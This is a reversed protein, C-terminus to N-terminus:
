IYYFDIKNTTALDSGAIVGNWYLTDGSAITSYTKATTGGDSSFYCHKTKVGNGLTMILGDVAIIILGKPTNSITLGTTANDGSTATPTMDKDSTQPSSISGSVLTDVYGKDVLSRSGYNASNDVAYRAGYRDFEVINTLSGNVMLNISMKFFEAGLTVDTSITEITGGVKYTDAVTEVEFEIGAGIGAAPALTTTHTLKLIYTVGANTADNQVVHLTRDPTETNIGVFEDLISINVKFDGWVVWENADIKLLNVVAHRGALELSQNLNRIVVESDGAITTQGINYQEVLIRAGIEFAVTDHNPITLTNASLSDMKILKYADSLAITYNTPQSNPYIGSISVASRWKVEGTISDRGLIQTIGDDQTPTLAINLNPVYVQDPDTARAKIGSGGLIVSRPSDSPINHDYGGIIASYDGLAGHGSIQAISNSSINIAHRGEARVGFEGSDGGFNATNTIGMVIAGFGTTVGKFGQVFNYSNNAVANRAMVFTMSMNAASPEIVNNAGGFIGSNYVQFGNSRIENNYGGIIASNHVVGAGATISMKNAEGTITAWRVNGVDGTITHDVGMIINHDYVGSGTIAINQGIITNNTGSMTILLDDTAHVEFKGLRSATTGLKLDYASGGAIETDVALPGGLRFNYGSLTIGNDSTYKKNTQFISFVIPDTGVNIIPDVAPTGSVFFGVGGYVAGDNVFTFSGLKVEADPSGDFDSARVMGAAFWVYVGNESTITQARVVVRSVGEVMTIGDIVSPPSALNINGTTAAQCEAKPDLGAFLASVYDVTTLDSAAAPVYGVTDIRNVPLTGPAIQKGHM